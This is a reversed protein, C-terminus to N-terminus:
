LNGNLSWSEVVNAIPFALIIPAWKKWVDASISSLWDPEEHLLLQFARYGAFAPRHMINTGLWAPTNPNGKSIYRKAAEVIRKRTTLDAEQWGPLTTLDPEFEDGYFKSDRKLTMERNLQWWASLDGAEYKELLAAFREVPSPKLLPRNERAQQWKQDELYREKAERAEPSDIQVPEFFM